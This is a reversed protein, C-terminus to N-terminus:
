FSPPNRPGLCLSHISFLPRSSPCSRVLVPLAIKEAWTRTERSGMAVVVCCVGARLLPLQGWGRGREGQLLANTLTHIHCKKTCSDTRCRMQNAIIGTLFASLSQLTDSLISNILGLLIFFYYCLYALIEKSAPDGPQAADFQGGMLACHLMCVEDTSLTAGNQDNLSNYSKRVLFCSQEDSSRDLSATWMLVQQQATLYLYPWALPVIMTSLPLQRCSGRSCHGWETQGTHGAGPSICLLVCGHLWGTHTSWQSKGDPDSCASDGRERTELPSTM